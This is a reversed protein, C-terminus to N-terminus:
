TGERPPGIEIGAHHKHHKLILRTTSQFLETAARRELEDTALEAIRGALNQILHDDTESIKQYSKMYRQNELILFLIVVLLFLHIATDIPM